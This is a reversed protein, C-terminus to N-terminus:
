DEDHFVELIRNDEADICLNIKPNMKFVYLSVVPIDDYGVEAGDWDAQWVLDNYTIM